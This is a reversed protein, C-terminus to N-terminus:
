TRRRRGPGPNGTTVYFNLDVLSNEPRPRPKAIQGRYFGNNQLAAGIEPQAARRAKPTPRERRCSPPARCCRLSAITKSERWTSGAWLSARHEPFSSPSTTAPVCGPVEITQYLGTAYLSRLSERVKDPDLPTGAQQALQSPLPKLLDERVGEFAIRVVQLVPGTTAHSDAGFDSQISGAPGCRPGSASATGPRGFNPFFGHKACASRLARRTASPGVFIRQYADCEGM